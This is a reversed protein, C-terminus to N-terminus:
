EGISSVVTYVDEPPTDFHGTVTIKAGNRLVAVDYRDPWATYAAQVDELTPETHGNEAGPDIDVHIYHGAADRIEYVIRETGSVTGQQVNLDCIISAYVLTYGKPVAAPVYKGFRGDARCDGLTTGTFCPDAAPTGEAELLAIFESLKEGDARICIMDEGDTSHRCLSVFGDYVRLDILFGNKAKFFLTARCPLIEDGSRIFVEGGDLLGILERVASEHVTGSRFFRDSDANGAQLTLEAANESLHLRDELIDRGFRYDATDTRNVFIMVTGNEQRSCLLLRPDVGDVTYVPGAFSGTLEAYDENKKKLDATCRSEGLYDGVCDADPRLVNQCTYIAGNHKFFSIWCADGEANQLAEGETGTPVATPVAATTQVASGAPPVAAEKTQEPKNGFILGAALAALAICAAAPLAFRFLSTRKKEAADQELLNEDISGILEFLKEGNM